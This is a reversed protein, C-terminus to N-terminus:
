PRVPMAVPIAPEAISASTSGGALENMMERNVGSIKMMRKDIYKPTLVRAKIMGVILVVISGFLGFLVFLVIFDEDIVRNGAIVCGGIAIAMVALWALWANRIAGSRKRRHMECLSYHVTGKKQLCIAVIAYILIGLLILFFLAPHHWAFTRTFRKEGPQNCRACRDPLNMTTPGVLLEGEIFYLGDEPRSLSMPTAYNMQVPTTANPPLPPPNLM